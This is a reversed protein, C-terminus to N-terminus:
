SLEQAPTRAPASAAVEALTNEITRVVLAALERDPAPRAESGPACHLSVGQVLMVILRAHSTFRREAEDPEVEAIRAFVKVLARTIGTEMRRVMEAVEPRRAAAAEIEVWIKADMDNAAADLQEVRKRVMARFAGQPDPSQIVQSFNGCVCALEREIIAEIIASKSPFYRYFNGASMDAARALDQMSAGDFGKAAFISKASELIELAKPEAIPAVVM